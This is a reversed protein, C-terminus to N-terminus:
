RCRARRRVEGPGVLAGVVQGVEGHAVELALELLPRRVVPLQRSASSSGQRVGGLGLHQVGARDRGPRRARSSSDLLAAAGAQEGVDLQRQDVQERLHLLGADGDVRSWRSASSSGSRSRPSAPRRSAYAHDALLDVEARGLLELDHQEVLERHRLGLAGLGAVGGVGSASWASYTFVSCGNRSCRSAVAVHAPQPLGISPSSFVTPRSPRIWVVNLWSIAAVPRSELVSGFRWFMGIRVSSPRRIRLPEDHAVAVLRQHRGVVALDLHPDHGVEGLVGDEDLRELGAAVEV